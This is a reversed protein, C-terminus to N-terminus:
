EIQMEMLHYEWMPKSNKKVASCIMSPNTSGCKENINFGNPKVGITIVKAGLDRLLKPAAKYGAGNACDM